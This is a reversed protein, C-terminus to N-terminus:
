VTIWIVPRVYFWSAHVGNGSNWGWFAGNDVYGALTNDVGVSRLWYTEGKSTLSNGGYRFAYADNTMEFYLSLEDYSLLFVKDYTDNGGYAYVYGDRSRVNDPNIVYTTNIKKKESESFVKNYFEGNLWKRLTCTEWTVNEYEENYPQEELVYRSILMLKNGDKALVEWQLSSETGELYEYTGFSVIDGVKSSKSPLAFSKTTFTFSKSANQGIAEGYTDIFPRIRIKYKTGHILNKLTCYNDDIDYLPNVRKVLYWTGSDYDYTEIDYGDAGDVRTWSLDVSNEYVTAKIKEPGDLKSKTTASLSKTKTQVVFKNNEKILAAIKFRYKTGRELGTVNCKANAVNKYKEFKKTEPNYMYVRYADAGEIPSWTLTIKNSKTNAKIGTPAPLLTEEAASATISFDPLINPESNLMLAALLLSLIRKKM